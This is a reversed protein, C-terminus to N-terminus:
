LNPNQVKSKPNIVLSWEGKVSIRNLEQIVETINGRLTKQFKKTIDNCAAVEINEGFNTSIEQLLKIVRFPSELVVITIEKDIYEELLKKIKGSKRPLFGLFVFKDTPLGSLVLASDVSTPGPIVDVEFGNNLVERILRFGPDSIAPMGADSVMSIVLEEKLLNLIQPVVRDHNQERYSIIQQKKDKDIKLTELVESYRQKLLGKFSTFVRTDEALIVNSEFIYRLSRLSVDELNGLPTGLILLKNM